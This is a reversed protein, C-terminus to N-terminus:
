SRDGDIETLSAAIRRWAQLETIRKNRNCTVPFQKSLEDELKALARDYGAQWAREECSRTHEQALEISSLTPPVKFQPKASDEVLRLAEMSLGPQSFYSRAWLIAEYASRAELVYVWLATVSEATGMLGSVKVDTAMEVELAFKM